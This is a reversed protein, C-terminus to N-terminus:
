IGMENLINTRKALSRVDESFKECAQDLKKPCIYVNAFYPFTQNKTRRM